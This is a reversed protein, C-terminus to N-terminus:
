VAIRSELYELIAPVGDIEAFDEVDMYIDFANELAIMIHVHGLSDWAELDSSVTALQVDVVDINLAASIIGQVQSFLEM